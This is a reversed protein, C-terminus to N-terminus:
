HQSAFNYGAEVGLYRPEGYFGWVWLPDVNQASQLYVKDTLNRGILRLFIRDDPTRYTITADLLARAQAFTQTFPANPLALSYTDLNKSIYNESADIDVSGLSARMPVAYNLDVTATWKPCRNVDLGSLDVITTGVGSSFSDYKCHQYSLPLNLLLDDTLRATLESELGYVTMQAANRFLTEEGPKGNLNTVPVVV